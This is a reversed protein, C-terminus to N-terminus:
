REQVPKVEFVQGTLVRLAGAVARQYPSVGALRQRLDAAEAPTLVRKRVFYDFRQQQPWFEPTWDSVPHVASFDQRLYTGGIGGLLNSVWRDDDDEDDEDDYKGGRKWPLMGPVPIEALLTEKPTNDQEAPAHCLLCNRLHNVRVL